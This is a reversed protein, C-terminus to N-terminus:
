SGVVCFITLDEFIGALFIRSIVLVMALMLTEARFGLTYGRGVASRCAHELSAKKHHELM